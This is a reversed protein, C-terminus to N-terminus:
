GKRFYSKAYIYGNELERNMGYDTSDKNYKAKISDLYKIAEEYSNYRYIWFSGGVDKIDTSRNSWNVLKNVIYSLLDENIQTM